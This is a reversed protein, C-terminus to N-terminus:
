KELHYPIPLLLIADWPVNEHRVQQKKKLIEM